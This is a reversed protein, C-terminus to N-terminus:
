EAAATASARAPASPSSPSKKARGKPAEKRMPASAKAEVRKREMYAMRRRRKVIKRHQQGMFRERYSPLERRAVSFLLVPFMCFLGLSIFSIADGSGELYM